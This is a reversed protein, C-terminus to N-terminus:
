SIFQAAWLSISGNKTPTHDTTAMTCWTWAWARWESEWSWQLCYISGIPYISRWCCFLAFMIATKLYLRWDGTKKLKNEKFYENIRKNLTSFFQAPDKRSFRITSINMKCPFNQYIYFKNEMFLILTSKNKITISLTLGTPRSLGLLFVVRPFLTLLGM